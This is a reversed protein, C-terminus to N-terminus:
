KCTVPQTPNCYNITGQSDAVGPAVAVSKASFGLSSMYFKTELESPVDSQNVVMTSGDAKGFILRVEKVNASGANRKVTVNADTASVSCGSIELNVAFCAEAQQIKAGSKTFLPQLFSWLIGIAVLTLLVILVTTVVDSLAKKNMAGKKNYM